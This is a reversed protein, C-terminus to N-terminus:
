RQPVVEKRDVQGDGETRSKVLEEYANHDEPPIPSPSPSRVSSDSQRMVSAVEERYRELEMTAQIYVICFLVHMTFLLYFLLQLQYM